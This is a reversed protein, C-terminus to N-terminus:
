IVNGPSYKKHERPLHKDIRAKNVYKMTMELNEHRAFAQLFFVNMGKEALYTISSHRFLHPYAHLGAQKAIKKIMHTFYDKDFTDGNQTIFLYPSDNNNRIVLWAKLSDITKQGMPLVFSKSGKGLVKISGKALDLDKLKANIVEQRRLACDFLIQIIAKNRIGHFTDNPCISIIKSIDEPLLVNKLIKPQKLKRIAKSPDEQIHNEALM